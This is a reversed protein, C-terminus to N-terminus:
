ICLLYLVSRGSDETMGQKMEHRLRKWEQNTKFQKDNCKMMDKSSLSGVFTTSFANMAHHVNYTSRQRYDNEINELTENDDFGVNDIEAEVEREGSDNGENESGSLDFFPDKYKRKSKEPKRSEGVLFTPIEVEGKLNLKKIVVEGELKETALYKTPQKRKNDSKALEKSMKGKKTEKEDESHQIESSDNDNSGDDDEDGDEDNDAVDESSNDDDAADFEDSEDADNDEDEEKYSKDDDDTGEDESSSQELSEESDGSKTRDILNEICLDKKKESTNVGSDVETALGSNDKKGLLKSKKSDVKTHATKTESIAKDKKRSQTIIKLADGLNSKGDVSHSDGSESDDNSNNFGSDLKENAVEPEEDPDSPLKNTLKGGLYTQILTESAKVNTELKKIKEKTKKKKFERSTHKTMLYAALEKWDDHDARFKQVVEQIFEQESLRALARIEITTSPQFSVGHIYSKYKVKWM